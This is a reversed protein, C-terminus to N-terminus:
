LSGEATSFPLFKIGDDSYEWRELVFNYRLAPKADAGYAMIYVSDQQDKGLIIRKKESLAFNWDGEFLNPSFPQPRQLFFDLETKQFNEIVYANVLDKYSTM